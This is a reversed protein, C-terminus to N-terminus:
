EADVWVGPFLRKYESIEIQIEKRRQKVLRLEWRFDAVLWGISLGFIFIIFLGQVSFM